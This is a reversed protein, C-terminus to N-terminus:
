VQTEPDIRRGGKAVAGRPAPVVEFRSLIRSWGVQSREATTEFYELALRTASNLDDAEIVSEHAFRRPEGRVTETYDYTVIFRRPM